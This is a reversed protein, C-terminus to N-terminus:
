GHGCGEPGALVGPLGCHLQLGRGLPEPQLHDDQRGKYTSTGDEAKPIDLMSIAYTPGDTIVDSAFTRSVGYKIDACTVPTGDQFSVGDRLTFEWTTADANPTGTDTAMDPVITNGDGGPAYKYNTLTRTTYGGFFAIDAGTYIRQPDVHLWQEANQLQTITGGPTGATTGGSAAASGESSSSSGGGCAALALAGVSVVAALRLGNNIAKGM